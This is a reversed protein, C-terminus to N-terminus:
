RRAPATSITSAGDLRGELWYYGWAAAERALLGIGVFRDPWAGDFYREKQPSLFSADVSGALLRATRGTHFSSTVVVLHPWRRPAHRALWIAQEWTSTSATELVIREPEVGLEDVAVRRLALAEVAGNSGRGGTLVLEALPFRRCLEAARELRERAHTGLRGDAHVSAGLVVIASPVGRLGLTGEFPLRLLRVLPTAACLISLGLTGLLVARVAKRHGPRKRPLRTGDPRMEQIRISM